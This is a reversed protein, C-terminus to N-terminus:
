EGQFFYNVALGDARVNEEHGRPVPGSSFLGHAALHELGRGGKKLDFDISGHLREVEGAFAAADHDFLRALTLGVLPHSTDKLM